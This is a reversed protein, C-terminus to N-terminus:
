EAAVTAPASIVSVTKGCAKRFDIPMAPAVTARTAAAAASTMEGASNASQPAFSARPSAPAPSAAPRQCRSAWQTMRRGPLTATTVAASISATAAGASVVVHDATSAVTMGFSLLARTTASASACPSPAPRDGTMTAM